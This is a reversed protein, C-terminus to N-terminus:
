RPKSPVQQAPPETAKEGKEDIVLSTTAGAKSRLVIGTRDDGNAKTPLGLKLTTQSLPNDLRVSSEDASQELSICQRKSGDSLGILTEQSYALLTIRVQGTEDLLCIEGGGFASAALRVVEKGEDNTIVLNKLSLRKPGGDGQTATSHIWAAAVISTGLILVKLM